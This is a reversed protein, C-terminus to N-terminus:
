GQGANKWEIFHKVQVLSPYFLVSSPCWRYLHFVFCSPLLADGTCTFPLVLRFFPMVQVLSLCFLFSSPCWRYLHLVFCSLLLAEGTCTFPLVLCSFPKVQVLSPCFLVPSPSWKYLHFSIVVRRTTVLAPNASPNVAYCFISIKSNGLLHFRLRSGGSCGSSVWVGRKVGSLKIKIAACSFFQKAFTSVGIM